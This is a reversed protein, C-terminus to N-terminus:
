PSVLRSIKFRAQRSAPNGEGKAERGPLGSPRLREYKAKDRRPPLLPMFALFFLRWESASELSIM